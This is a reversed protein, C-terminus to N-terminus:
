CVKYTMENSGVKMRKMRPRGTFIGTSFGEQYGCIPKWVNDEDNEELDHVASGRLYTSKSNVKRGSKLSKMSNQLTSIDKKEWLLAESADWWKAPWGSTSAATSCIVRLNHTRVAATIKTLSLQVYKPAACTDPPVHQTRSGFPPFLATRIEQPLLM